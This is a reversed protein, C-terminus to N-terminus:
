GACGYSVGSHEPSYPSKEPLDLHLIQVSGPAFRPNASYPELSKMIGYILFLGIGVPIVVMAAQGVRRGSSM